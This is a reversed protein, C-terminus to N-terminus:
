GRKAYRGRKEIDALTKVVRDADSCNNQYANLIIKWAKEATEHHTSDLAQRLLRLDVAKDETRASQIGLGFDIFYVKKGSFIMNSTTLDGHIINFSHMKGISAGIKTCIEKINQGDLVDRVKQGEIFEMEISYVDEGSIQPTDMGVRRAERLLKAESRTRRKRLAQDIEELRYGKKVREKLLKGDEKMYIVAEAGRSLIKM